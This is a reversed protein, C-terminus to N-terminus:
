CRFAARLAENPKENAVDVIKDVAGGVFAFLALKKNQKDSPRM